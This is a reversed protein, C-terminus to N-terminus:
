NVAATRANRLMMEVVNGNAQKMTEPLASGYTNMTTRVDAHRMLRQIVGVPTGVADLWTRYTHRMTHSTVHGLGAATAAASLKKWFACYSYPTTGATHPSAFIWDEDGHFKTHKNWNELLALLGQNLPLPDGSTSTKVEDVRNLVVSRNFTFSRKGTWDIDSWRLGAIESFRGGLGFGFLLMTRWPEAPMHQLLRDFEEFSLIRGLRKQRKSAGRITLLGRDGRAGSGRLPNRGIPLYEWLMACDIVMSLLSKLNNKTKPSLELQRLWLEIDYPRLLSAIPLDGWRPLVHNNLNCLYMRRTSYREPMRERIYRECVHSVTMAGPPLEAQSNIKSRAPEAALQAKTKNPYQSLPGIRFARRRGDAERWRFYWINTRPDLVVSGGQYRARM